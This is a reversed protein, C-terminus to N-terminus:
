TTLLVVNAFYSLPEIAAHCSAHSRSRDVATTRPFIKAHVSHVLTGFPLSLNEVCRPNSFFSVSLFSPLFVMTNKTAPLSASALLTLISPARPSRTGVFRDSSDPRIYQKLKGIREIRTGAGSPFGSISSHSIKTKVRERSNLSCALHPILAHLRM